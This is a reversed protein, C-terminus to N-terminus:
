TVEKIILECEKKWYRYANRLFTDFKMNEKDV